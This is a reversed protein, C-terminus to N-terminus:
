VLMVPGLAGTEQMVTLVRDDSSRGFIDGSGGDFISSGGVGRTRLVTVGGRDLISSDDKFNNVTGEVDRDRDSL